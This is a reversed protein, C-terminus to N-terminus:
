RGPTEWTLIQFAPRSAKPDANLRVVSQRVFQAGAAKAAATIRVVVAGDTAYVSLFPRLRALLEPTTGIVLGVESISEFPRNTPAYPLGASRYQDLKKGGSLSEASASRWDIVARAISRARGPEAGVQELLVRMAEIGTQNPNLRTAQNEVRVRVMAGPNRIWQDTGDPMWRGQLLRLMAEHVAGDAAAQAIANARLHDALKVEMRGAAIFQSVLLALPGLTLLVILLAFGRERPASM